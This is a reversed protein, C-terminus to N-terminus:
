TRSRSATGRASSAKWCASARMWACWAATATPPVWEILGPYLENWADQFLGQKSFADKADLALIKSRPKHRKLYGAIMSIREYPGPPCRFPNAPIALGVVGGDPMEQLQRRLM